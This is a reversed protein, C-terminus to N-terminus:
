NLALRSREVLESTFEPILDVLYAERLKQKEALAFPQLGVSV